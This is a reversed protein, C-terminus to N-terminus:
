ITMSFDVFNLNFYDLQHGAYLFLFCITTGCNYPILTEEVRKILSEGLQLSFLADLQLITPLFFARVKM